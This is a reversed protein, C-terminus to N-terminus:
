TILYLLNLHLRSAFALSVLRLTLHPTRPSVLTRSTRPEPIFFIFISIFIFISRPLPVAVPDPATFTFTLPAARSLCRRLCVFLCVVLCSRSPPLLFPACCSPRISSPAVLCPQFLEPPRGRSNGPGPAKARQVGSFAPRLNLRCALHRGSAAHFAGRAADKPPFVALM